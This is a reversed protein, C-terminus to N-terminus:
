HPNGAHTLTGWAVFLSNTGQPRRSETYRQTNPMTIGLRTNLHNYGVETVPGLGRQISGGCLNSPPSELEYRTHLGLVTRLRDAIEPYLDQGQIRTTEAFNAISAIGYGTHVFDRCTEQSLGEMFTTQNHWYRIIEDRTDIGSGPPTRPLAGDSPLYVFAPVRTRFKAVARDYATRDELFVAIGISAEMMTLEWNGNSTAHGNIVEPLYVNRLMTGFRAANPWSSYTYRIIEAARTWSTASWASQLPANSNTHDRITNSWADMIQIAKTAYQSNQTIYWNLALTYAAIADQREDTCGNNPMSYPGCEVVARPRPTRSLSNYQSGAMQNYANRWPQANANVRGRVFDLQPRSVLVGPHTFTAPAASAPIAPVAASILLAFAAAFLRRRSGSAPM